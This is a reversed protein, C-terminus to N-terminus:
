AAGAAAGNPSFGSASWALTARVGSRELRDLMPALAEILRESGALAGFVPAFGCLVQARARASRERRSDEHLRALQAAMPDDIVYARGDEDVGRLYHLWAAVALALLPAPRGADLRERLSAILRQPLKHSGDMAIQQTRHTLAPNAFRQLLASVYSPLDLGPLAPLTPVVEDNMMCEVCRRLPPQAIAEDVTAWGAMAGLYAIASHAGNVLRLKATEWPAADAVFRAGGLSWDPRGSVFGDEVAWDFFPEALVPAADRCGLAQAIRDRDADTTRPVIRDVMSSPFGVEREIWAALAEDRRAAFDLVLGRLWHGNRPLNDLCMLTIPALGRARRRALAEVVLGLASQPAARGADGGALDHAIDPRDALLRGSTPDGGYGKETITMSVIRTAPAAIAEVVAGPDEPAVRADTVCGIVRLRERQSGTEDADRVAVAYLGQQPRLADRVAPSRLSVGVIGWDPGAGAGLAADTAVALHARVFAGLGLHVIGPRLTRRDYRPREVAAPLGALRSPDLRPSM